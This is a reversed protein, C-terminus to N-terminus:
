QCLLLFFNDVRYDNGTAATRLQEILLRYDAEQVTTKRHIKKFFNQAANKCFM